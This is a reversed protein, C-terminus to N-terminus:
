IEKASCEICARSSVKAISRISGLYVMQKSGGPLTNIGYSIDSVAGRERLFALWRNVENQESRVRDSLGNSVIPSKMLMTGALSCLIKCEYTEDIASGGIHWSEIGSDEGFQQWDARVHISTKAFRDALDRWEASGVTRKLGEIEANKERVAADFEGDKMRVVSRLEEDKAAAVQSCASQRKAIEEQSQRDLLLIAKLVQYTGYILFAALYLWLTTRVLKWDINAIAGRGYILFVAILPTAFM